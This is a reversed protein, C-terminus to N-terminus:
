FADFQTHTTVSKKTKINIYPLIDARSITILYSVILIWYYIQFKQYNTWMPKVKRVNYNIHRGITVHVVVVSAEARGRALCATCFKAPTTPVLSKSM